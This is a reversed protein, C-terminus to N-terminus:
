LSDVRVYTPKGDVGLKKSRKLECMRKLEDKSLEGVTKVTTGKGKKLPRCYPYDQPRDIGKGSGCPKYGGPGDGKNCVNVWVEDDFWRKLTNPKSSSKKQGLRQVYVPDAKKVGKFDKANGKCVKTAYGNAYASPYVEFKAKATCYGRPCLKLKGKEFRKLSKELCKTYQKLKDSSDQSDTSM